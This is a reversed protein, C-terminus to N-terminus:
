ATTRKDISQKAVLIEEEDLNNIITTILNIRKEKDMETTMKKWAYDYQSLAPKFARAYNKDTKKFGDVVILNKNLISTILLHLSKDKWTRNISAELIESATLATENEWLVNMIEMEKKTLTGIDNTEKMNDLNNM